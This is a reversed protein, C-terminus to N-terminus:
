DGVGIYRIVNCAGVRSSSMVVGGDEVEEETKIIKIIKVISKRAGQACEKEETGPKEAVKM